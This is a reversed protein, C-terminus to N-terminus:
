SDLAATFEEPLPAKATFEFTRNKWEYGFRTELSHLFLRKLGTRRVFERNRVFDGYTQDGVIPLHRKACQVRLQHSRGTKPELQILALSPERRRVRIVRARSEAPIRGAEASTRIQGSKKSVALHDHWLEVPRAPQGFVLAQYIKAVRKRKFTARVERALAEDTALLIVGSTASDLRNLLWARHVTAVPESAEKTAGDGETWRYCEAAADYHANLLCRPRDKAENPHSLVGERKNLAVVGNADSNLFQVGPGLPWSVVASARTTSV